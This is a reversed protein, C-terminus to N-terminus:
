IRIIKGTNDEEDSSSILLDIVEKKKEEEDKKKTQQEEEKGLPKLSQKLPFPFSQLGTNTIHLICKLGYL